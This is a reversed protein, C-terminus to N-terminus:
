SALPVFLAGDAYDGTVTRALEISLRTKGIGPSGTLTVLRAMRVIPQLEALDRQRGIFRTLALPANHLQRLASRAVARASGDLSSGPKADGVPEHRVAWAAVEARSRAGLKPLINAVHREVTSSAIVLADAIMRNTFGRAVLRAVERERATLTLPDGMRPSLLLAIRRM